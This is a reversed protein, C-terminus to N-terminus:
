QKRHSCETQNNHTQRVRPSLFIKAFNMINADIFVYGVLLSLSCYKQMHMTTYIGELWFDVNWPKNKWLNLPKITNGNGKDRVETTIRQLFEM